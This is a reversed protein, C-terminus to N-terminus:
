SGDKNKEKSFPYPVVEGSNLIVSVNKELDYNEHPKIILPFWFIHYSPNEPIKVKMYDNGDDYIVSDVHRGALGWLMIWSGTENISIDAYRRSGSHKVGNDIIGGLDHLHEWGFRTKKLLSLQIQNTAQSLPVSFFVMNLNDDIINQLVIEAKKNYYDHIYDEIPKNKKYDMFMAVAIMLFIIITVILISKFNSTSEKMSHEGSIIM